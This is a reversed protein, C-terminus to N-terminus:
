AARGSAPTLPVGGPFYTTVCFTSSDLPLLTPYPIAHRLMLEFEKSDQRPPHRLVHRPLANDPPNGTRISAVIAAPEIGTILRMSKLMEVSREEPLDRLMDFIEAISEYKKKTAELERKMVM